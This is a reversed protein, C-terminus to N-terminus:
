CPLQDTIGVQLKHCHRGKSGWLDLHVWGKSSLILFLKLHTDSYLSMQRIQIFINYIKSACRRFTSCDSVHSQEEMDLNCWLCCEWIFFIVELRNGLNTGGEEGVQPCSTQPCSNQGRVTFDRKLNKKNKFKKNTKFSLYFFFFVQHFLQPELKVTHCVGVRTNNNAHCRAVRWRQAGEM